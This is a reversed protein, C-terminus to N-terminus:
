TVFAFLGETSLTRLQGIQGSLPAYFYLIFPRQQLIGRAYHTNMHICHVYGDPFIVPMTLRELLTKGSSDVDDLSEVDVCEQQLVQFLLFVATFVFM